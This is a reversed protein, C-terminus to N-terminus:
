IETGCLFLKWQQAILWYKETSVKLNRDSSSIFVNVEYFNGIITVGAVYDFAVQYIRVM